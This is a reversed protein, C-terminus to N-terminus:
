KQRAEILDIYKWIQDIKKDQIQVIEGLTTIADLLDKYLKIQEDLLTAQQNDTM